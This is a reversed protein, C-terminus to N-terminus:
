DDSTAVQAIVQAVVNGILYVGIIWWWNQPAVGWGKIMVLVMTALSVTIGFCALLFKRLGDM